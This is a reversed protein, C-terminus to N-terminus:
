FWMTKSITNSLESGNLMHGVNQVVVNIQANVTKEPNGQIAVHPTMLFNPASWIPHNRPLPEIEFVDLAAGGIVNRRLANDLDNLKTTAGRGVNVSCCM